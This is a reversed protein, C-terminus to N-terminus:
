CGAYGGREAGKRRQTKVRKRLAQRIMLVAGPSLAWANGIRQTLLGKAEAKRRVTDASVRLERAVQPITKLNM